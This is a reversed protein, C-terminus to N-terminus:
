SAIEQSRSEMQMELSTPSSSHLPCTEDAGGASRVSRAIMWGGALLLLVAVLARGRARIGPSAWRQAAVVATLAPVTGAGFALMALASLPPSPLAAAPILMAYVLGCPIWGMLAGVLFRPGFGSTRQLGSWALLRRLGAAFRLALSGKAGAVGPLLLVAGNLVIVIGFVLAIWRRGDLAWRLGSGFTGALLGLLMYTWLRGLHYGAADRTLSRRTPSQRTPARGRDLGAGLGVVLPGCMGICHLSSTLGALAMAGFIALHEGTM